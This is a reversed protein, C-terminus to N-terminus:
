RIERRFSPSFGTAPPTRKRRILAILCRKFLVPKLVGKSTAPVRLYESFFGVIFAVRKRAAITSAVAMPAVSALACHLPLAPLQLVVLVADTVTPASTLSPM